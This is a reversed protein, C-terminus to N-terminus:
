VYEKPERAYTDKVCYFTTFFTNETKNYVHRMSSIMYKLGLLINYSDKHEKVAGQVTQPLHLNIIDGTRLDTNGPVTVHILVNDLQAISAHDYKIHTHKTRPNRIQQDRAVANNVKFYPSQNQYDDGIQSVLYETTESSKNKKYVSDGTYIKHDEVHALQKFDKEYLFQESTFKKLIPDITEVTNDYLGSDISKVTDVQRLTNVQSVRQHRKVDDSSEVHRAGDDVYFDEVPDKTLLDDLLDIRLGDDNEHLLFVSSQYMLNNPRTERLIQQICEFPRIGPFCLARTADSMNDTVIFPKKRVTGFDSQTPKLYSEYISSIITRSDLDVFTRNVSTTKNNIVEQSVGHLLFSNFRDASAKKEDIKFVQFAFTIPNVFRDGQQNAKFELYIIEDGVIPLLEALGVADAVLLECKIYPNDINYIVNIEVVLDKIDIINGAHNILSLVSIEIDGPHYTQSAM